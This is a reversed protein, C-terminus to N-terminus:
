PVGCRLSGLQASTPEACCFWAETLRPREAPAMRSSVGRPRARLERAPKHEGLRSQATRLQTEYAEVPEWSQASAREAIDSLEAQLSDLRPDPSTWSYSAHMPDYPGVLGDLQGSTLLLSGPPVLLRISLQVPDVNGVLDLDLIMEFIDLIDEPTSWPTFPVFSPRPEIGSARLVRVAEEVDRASHGKALRALIEDNASEVASVVFLCGARAFTPWIGDHAHRLIHEIKVTVDFTLDPFSSGFAAIVRRAHHPGNLFDPDGFTIHRAGLRVLQEIDALMSDIGVLRTRGDYITPVPCHRCRHSCGHSAEVYGVLREDAGLALKAYQELAPLLHRAPIHQRSRSFSVTLAPRAGCGDLAPAPAPALPVWAKGASLADVWRVLEEEYEGSIAASAEPLAGAYGALSAYLGYLAIPIGPRLASVAQAVQHGLRYATHMPVSLAVAGAWAVDEDSMSQVSLDLCRVDHGAALLRSAPAALHLPQHGLEYTSVLLVRM